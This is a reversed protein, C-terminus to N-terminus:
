EYALVRDVPKRVASWAPSASAIVAIAVVAFFWIVWGGGSLTLSVPMGFGIDFVQTMLGSLPISLLVAFIWSLVGTFVGELLVIQLVQPTSAGMARLIGIERTRELVNLSMAAALGFGGVIIFLAAMILLIGTILLMHTQFVGRTDETKWMTTVDFGMDTLQVELDRAIEDVRTQDSVRVVINAAQGTQGIMQSFYDFPVYATGSLYEWSIGVLQWVTQVGNISLTIEDGVVTDIELTKLLASNIVIANQDDPQLWRGSTIPIEPILQTGRPLAAIRLPHGLTGDPLVVSAQGGGWTEIREVGSIHSVANEVLTQAYSQSFSIDLNYPVADFKRAVETDISAIVNMAATFSAGATTLTILTLVLRNRRRFTNRLSLLFPRAIGTVKSLFVDIISSGFQGKGVGYDSLADVVTRRSGKSIPYISAILPMLLGVATILGYAWVDVGYDFIDFNLMNVAQDSALMRGLSVSIPLGIVLAIVGLTLVMLLYIGAIQGISGGIAKMIGIQRIQQALMASIMNTVLISSMILTLIGSIGLMMLFASMLDAHPHKGPEPIDIRAVTYGNEELWEKIAYATERIHAQDFKNEAVTLLLQNLSFDGGFLALTEPTIYGYVRGEVWAPPLGPAHVTGTVSLPREDVNPLKVVVTDGIEAQAVQIATREFLIEGTGPQWVGQDPTFTGIQLNDFNAIVYLWLERWEGDGIRIRGIIQARAEALAIDPRDAVIQVLNQDVGDVWLSASAPTTNLYNKDMERILISYTTAVTGVSVVGVVLALIVLFARAKNEWLDRFAKRYYATMTM